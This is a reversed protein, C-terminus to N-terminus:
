VAESFNSLVVRTTPLVVKPGAIMSWVKALPVPVIVQSPSILVIPIDAKELQWLIVEISIGEETVVISMVEKLLQEFKVEISIGEETM